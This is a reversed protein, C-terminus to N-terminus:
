TLLRPTMWSSVRDYSAWIFRMWDKKCRRLMVQRWGDRLGVLVAMRM